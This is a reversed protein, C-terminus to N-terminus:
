YKLRGFDRLLVLNQIGINAQWWRRSVAFEREYDGWEWTVAWSGEDSLSDTIFRLEEEMLKENGKFFISDPKRFLHSPKCCYEAAWKSIDKEITCNVQDILRKRFAEIDVVSNMDLEVLYEYLEIFCRLEHMETSENRNLFIEVAEGAIDFGIKFEDSGKEGNKIMFGALAASPNYGPNEDAESYSWWPARPYDNNSPVSFQWRGKAMGDGSALYKMISKIMPHSSDRLGIEKLFQIAWWTQLPSSNPNWCDAELAHGFGGDKNQFSELIRIVDDATGGEFHYNWRAMDLPRANRYIWSRIQQYQNGTLM